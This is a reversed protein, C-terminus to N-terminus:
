KINLKNEIKNNDINGDKKIENNRKTSQKGYYMFYLIYNKSVFEYLIKMKKGDCKQAENLDFIYRKSELYEQYLTQFNLSCFRKFINQLERKIKNKKMLTQFDPLLHYSQYIEIINKNMYKLNNSINMNTIFSQPLKKIKINLCFNIIKHIIKFFKAKSKKLLSHISSKKTKAIQLKKRLYSFIAYFNNPLESPITLEIELFFNKQLEINTM